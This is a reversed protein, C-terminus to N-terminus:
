ARAGTRFTRRAGWAEGDTGVLVVRDRAVRIAAVGHSTGLPPDPPLFWAVRWDPGDQSFGVEVGDEAIGDM